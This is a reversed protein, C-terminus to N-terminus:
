GYVETIKINPHTYEFMKKKIKYVETKFTLSAKVDEVIYEDLGMDYYAFDAYYKIARITRGDKKFSPQLEFAPQLVLDKIKKYKVLMSLELYRNAEAKSDFKIGDIETKKNGYKNYRM